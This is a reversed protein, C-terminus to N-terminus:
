ARQVAWTLNKLPGKKKDLLETVIFGKIQPNFSGKISAEKVYLTETSKDYGWYFTMQTDGKKLNAHSPGPGAVVVSNDPFVVGRGWLNGFPVIAVHKDGFNEEINNPMGIVFKSITAELLLDEDLFDRLSIKGEVTPLAPNVTEIDAILPMPSEKMKKKKKSSFIPKEGTAKTYEQKLIEKLKM